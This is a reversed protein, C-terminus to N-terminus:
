NITIKPISYSIDSLETWAIPDCSALPILPNLPNLPNQSYNLPNQLNILPNQLSFEPKLLENCDKLHLVIYRLPLATTVIACIFCM